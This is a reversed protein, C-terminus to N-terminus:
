LSDGFLFLYFIKGKEDRGLTERRTVLTELCELYALLVFLTGM